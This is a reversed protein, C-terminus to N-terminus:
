VGRTLDLNRLYGIEVELTSELWGPEKKDARPESWPGVKLPEAALLNGDHDEVFYATLADAAADEFEVHGALADLLHQRDSGAEDVESRSRATVSLRRYRFAGVRGMGEHTRGRQTEGKFRLVLDRDGALRPVEDRATLVVAGEGLKLADALYDTLSLLIARLGSRIQAAM